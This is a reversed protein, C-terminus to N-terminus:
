NNGSPSKHPMRKFFSTRTNTRKDTQGSKEPFDDSVYLSRSMSKPNMHKPLIDLLSFDFIWFANLYRAITVVELKKQLFFLFRKAFYIHGWFWFNECNPGYVCHLFLFIWSKASSFEHDVDSQRPGFTKWVFPRLAVRARRWHPHLRTKVKPLLPIYTFSVLQHLSSLIIQPFCM